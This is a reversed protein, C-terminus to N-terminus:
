AAKEKGILQAKIGRLLAKGLRASAKTSWLAAFFLLITFGAGALATGVSFLELNMSRQLIGALMGVLGGVAAAAASLDVTWLVLAVVWILLYATLALVAVTVLLPLWVPSGLVLLVIELVSLKRRPKVRAVVIRALPQELLIAEAADEPTPLEAVAEAESLGDEMRDEILEAYYQASTEIDAEPLGRLADRLRALYSEKDM